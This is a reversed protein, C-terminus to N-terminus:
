HIKIARSLEDAEREATVLAAMDRDFRSRDDASPTAPVADKLTGAAPQGPQSVVTTSPRTM